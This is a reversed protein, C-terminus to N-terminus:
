RKILDPTDSGGFLKKYGDKGKVYKTFGANKLQSDSPASTGISQNLGAVSILRELEGDCPEDSNPKTHARQTISESMKHVLELEEGCVTCRYDYAPM